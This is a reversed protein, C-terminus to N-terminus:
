HSCNVDIIVEDNDDVPATEEPTNNTAMARRYIRCERYKLQSVSTFRSVLFDKVELLFIIDSSESAQWNEFEGVLRDAVTSESGTAM